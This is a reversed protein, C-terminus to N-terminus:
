EVLEERDQSETHSPAQPDRAESADTTEIILYEM